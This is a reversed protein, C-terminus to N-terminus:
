IWPHEPAADGRVVRALGLRRFVGDLQAAVLDSSPQPGVGLFHQECLVKRGLRLLDCGPLNPRDETTLAVRYGARRVEGVVREDYRGAPYALSDPARGVHEALQRRPAHIEADLDLEVPLVGHSRGHAGIEFGMRALARVGDWGMVRGSEAPEGIRAELAAAIIETTAFPLAHLIADSADLPRGAALLQDARALPWTAEEPVALGLLRVRREAARLTLAYLRDHLLWGTEVARTTVFITAPAGRRQLLPAAHELVDVYGDDFTLVAVDRGPMEQEGALIATADALSMILHRKALHDIQLDLTKTSICLPPM